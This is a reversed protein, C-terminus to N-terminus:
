NTRIPTSYNASDRDNRDIANYNAIYDAQVQPAGNTDHTRKGGVRRQVTLYDSRGVKNNSLFMGTKQGETKHMAPLLTNKGCKTM